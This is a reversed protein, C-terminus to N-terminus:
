CPACISASPHEQDDHIRGYYAKLEGESSANLGAPTIGLLEVLPIGSVSALQEQSQAQLADLTGLPASM